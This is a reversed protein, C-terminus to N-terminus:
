RGKKRSQIIKGTKKDIKITMVRGNKQLVRVQYFKKGGSIKVVKGPYKKTATSVAQNKSIGGDGRATAVPIQFLCLIVLTLVTKTLIHM